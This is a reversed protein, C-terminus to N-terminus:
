SREKEREREENSKNKTEKVGWYLKFHLIQVQFFSYKRITFGVAIYIAMRRSSGGFPPSSAGKRIQWYYISWLKAVVYAISLFKMNNKFSFSTAIQQTFIM